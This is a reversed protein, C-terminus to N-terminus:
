LKGVLKNRTQPLSNEMLDGAHALKCQLETYAISWFLEDPRWGNFTKSYALKIYIILLISYLREKALICLQLFNTILADKVSNWVFMGGIALLM